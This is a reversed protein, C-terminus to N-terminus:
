DLFKFTIEGFKDVIYNLLAHIFIITGFMEMSEQISCVLNVLLSDEGHKDVVFGEILEVGIAGGVYIIAAILINLKTKVPLRHWFRYFVLVIIFTIISIPIIWVLWVFNFIGIDKDKFIAHMIPGVYREHFMFIEDYTMFLFGLALVGWYYKDKNGNNREALYIIVLLFSSILLILGSFFTPLNLEEDLNLFAVLGRLTRGTFYAFVQSTISLIILISAILILTSDISKPKIVLKKM